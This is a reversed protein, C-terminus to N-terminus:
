VNQTYIPMEGFPFLIDFPANMMFDYDMPDLTASPTTQELADKRKQHMQKIVNGRLVMREFIEPLEAPGSEKKLVQEFFPRSEKLKEGMTNIVQNFDITSEVYTRDWGAHNHLSLQSLTIMAKGFQSMVTFPFYPFLSAPLSYMNRFFSTTAELARFLLDLRALPYDGYHSESQNPSLAVRYLHIELTNYHFSLIATKIRM